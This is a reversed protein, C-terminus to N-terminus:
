QRMRRYEVPERRFWSHNLAPRVFDSESSRAGSHTFPQSPFWCRLPPISTLYKNWKIKNKKWPFLTLLDILLNDYPEIWNLSRRREENKEEGVIASVANPNRMITPFTQRWGVKTGNVHAGQGKRLWNDGADYCPLSFINGGDNNLFLRWNNLPQNVNQRVRWFLVFCFISSFRFLITKRRGKVVDDEDISKQKKIVALAM